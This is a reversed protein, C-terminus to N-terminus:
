STKMIRFVVRRNQAKGQETSNDAVPQGAGFGKASLRKQDIGHEVLYKVVAEARAQSLAINYDATGVNDTHGEIQVVWLKNKTLLEKLKTLEAFSEPKLTAENTAFFINNLTVSSGVRVSDLTITTQIERYMSVSELDLNDSYPLYNASNVNVAYHEGYPLVVAFRGNLPNTQLTAAVEGDKLTAYVISADLPMKSPSQVKGTVLIVPNPRIDDSLAVRYLDLRNSNNASSFYAVDGSAPISYYADMGQTNLEPGLNRPSTWNVWSDDLRKAIFMDADGFGRHGKSSFYLSQGDPALFPTFDDEITNIVPGLNQPRGYRFTAPDELKSIYLDLGGYGDPMEASFIIYQFNTSITQSSLPNKNIYGEIFISDIKWDTKRRRAFCLGNLSNHAFNKIFLISGDPSVGSIADNGVSNIPAGLNVPKSWGDRDKRSVYCDQLKQDGMNEPHGAGMTFFLLNGDPSIIPSLESFNSNVGGLNAKQIKRRINKQSSSGQALAYESALLSIIVLALRIKVSV